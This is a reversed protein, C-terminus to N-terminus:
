TKVKGDQVEVGQALLYDRIRDAAAFDRAARLEARKALMDDIENQTIPITPEAEAMEPDGSNRGLAADIRAQAKKKAIVVIDRDLYAAVEAFWRAWLDRHATVSAPYASVDMGRTRSSVRRNGWALALLAPDTVTIIEGPPLARMQEETM